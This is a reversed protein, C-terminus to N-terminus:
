FSVNHISSIWSWLILHSSFSLRLISQIGTITHISNIELQAFQQRSNKSIYPSVSTSISMSLTLIFILSQRILVFM